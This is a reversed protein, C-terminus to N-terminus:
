LNWMTIISDNNIKKKQGFMQVGRTLSDIFLQLFLMFTLQWKWDTFCLPHINSSWENRLSKLPESALTLYHNSFVWTYLPVKLWWPFVERPKSHPHKCFPNASSPLGERFPIIINPMMGHTRCCFSSLFSLGVNRESQKKVTWAIHGAAEGKQWSKGATIPQARLSHAQM